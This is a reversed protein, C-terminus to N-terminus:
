PESRGFEVDGWPDDGIPEVEAASRALLEVEVSEAAVRVRWDRVRDLAPAAGRLAGEVSRAFRRAAESRDWVTTLRIVDGEPGSGPSAGPYWSEGTFVALDGSRLAPVGEGAGSARAGIGKLWVSVGEAALAWQVDADRGARRAPKEAAPVPPNGIRCALRMWRGEVPELGFVRLASELAGRADAGMASARRLCQSVDAPEVDLGLAPAPKLCVVISVLIAWGIGFGRM